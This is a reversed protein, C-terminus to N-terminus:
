LEVARSITEPFTKRLFFEEVRSSQESVDLFELRLFRLIDKDVLFESNLIENPCNNAVGKYITLTRLRTEPQIPLVTLRCRGRLLPRDDVRAGM